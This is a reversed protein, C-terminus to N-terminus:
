QLKALVRDVMEASLGLYRTPDCLKRLADGHVHRTIEPTEALVDFLPRRQEIAKLCLAQVLDHAQGRGLHQALGMMVAEAVILGHTLDLNARM